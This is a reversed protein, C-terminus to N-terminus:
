CASFCQRRTSADTLPSVRLQLCDGSMSHVLRWEKNNVSLAYIHWTTPDRGPVDNATFLEYSAIDHAHHLTIELVSKGNAPMNLDVFKSAASTADGDFLRHPLQKLPSRGGPNAIHKIRIPSGGELSSFLQLEQLQLERHPQKTETFEVRVARAHVPPPQPPLDGDAGSTQDPDSM